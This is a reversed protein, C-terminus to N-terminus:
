GHAMASVWELGLWRRVDLGCNGVKLRKRFTSLIPDVESVLSIFDPYQWQGKREESQRGEVGGGVRV